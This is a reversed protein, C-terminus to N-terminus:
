RDKLYRLRELRTPERLQVHGKRVAKLLQKISNPRLLPTRKRKIPIIPM